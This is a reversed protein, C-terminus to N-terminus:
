LSLSLKRVCNRIRNVAIYITSISRLCVSVLYSLAYFKVNMFNFCFKTPRGEGKCPLCQKCTTIGTNCSILIKNYLKHVCMYNCSVANSLLSTLSKIRDTLDTVMTFWHRGFYLYETADVNGIDENPYQGTGISVVLSIPLKMGQDRYHKQIATLGVSSPNQALIGGDVYNDRETFYVPGASTYRAVKWVLEICISPTHLSLTVTSYFNQISGLNHNFKHM